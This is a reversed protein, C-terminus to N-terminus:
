WAGQWDAIYTDQKPASHMDLPAGGFHEIDKTAQVIYRVVDAMHSYQDHVPQSSWEGTAENFKFKYNELCDLVRDCNPKVMRALNHKDPGIGNIQTNYLAMRTSQIMTISEAEDGTPLGKTQFINTGRALVSVNPFKERVMDAPTERISKEHHEADWPLIISAIQNYYHKTALDDVYEPLAKGHGEGCDYMFITNNYYQFAIWATADAQKGASGIDFCVYVPYAPNLNFPQDRKDEILKTLALGYVAAADMEEFSVYYEQQFMRANGFRRLYQEEIRELEQQTLVVPLGERKMMDNLDDITRVLVQADSNGKIMEMLQWLPNQRKGRPTSAIMLRKPDGNQAGSEIIPMLRPIPDEKTFLSLETFFYDQFSTGVGNKDKGSQFYGDLKLTSKNKFRGEMVTDKWKIMLSEPVNDQLMQVHEGIAADYYTKDWLINRISPKDPAVYV